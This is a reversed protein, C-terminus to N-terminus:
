GARIKTASIAEIDAPLEIRDIAYGVDRGYVVGAINPLQIVRYSGHYEAMKAKIGACVEEYSYPNDPGLPMTRVGICVRGYKAMAEEILAKHGAHFPQFRGIVLATPKTTDLQQRMSHLIYLVQAVATKMSTKATVIIDPYPPPIFIKDTDPYASEVIRDMLVVIDPDLLSRLKPLPCVFAAIGVPGSEGAEELRNRMDICQRERGEATFDWNGTEARVADGDFLKVRLGVGEIAKVLQTAFTTKGSGPLGMVLIKM